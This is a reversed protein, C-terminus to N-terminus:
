ALQDATSSSGTSLAQDLLGRLEDMTRVRPGLEGLKEPAIGPALVGIVQGPAGYASDIEDIHKVLREISKDVYGTTESARVPREFAGVYSQAGAERGVVLVLAPVTYNAFTNVKGTPMSVAFSAAFQAAVVAAFDADDGLNAALSPLNISAYRYLTGSSFDIDGIMGAGNDEDDDKILDDVATFYDTETTAMHTSIAHAVQLSADVTLTKDSAVMRGFLAVDASRDQHMIAHLNLAQIAEVLKTNKKDKPDYAARLAAYNTLLAEATNDIVQRGVLLMVGKATDSAGITVQYAMAGLVKNFDKNDPQHRDLLDSIETPIRRSRVARRDEPLFQEMHIRSARKWAQSSVRLRPAGGYIASKPRGDEGRNICSPPVSQIIHIDITRLPM